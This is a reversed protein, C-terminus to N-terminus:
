TEIQFDEKSVLKQIDILIILKDNIRVIGKIYDKGPTTHRQVLDVSMDINKEQVTLTTPVERVLIGMQLEEHALVLTFSKSVSGEEEQKKLHFRKELNIIAFINGRINAVGSIYAPTLPLPSVSPTLVVERVQDIFLGYEQNGLKFVIIQRNQRIEQANTENMNELIQPM